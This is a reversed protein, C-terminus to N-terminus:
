PASRQLVKTLRQLLGNEYDTAYRQARASADEPTLSRGLRDNSSGHGPILAERPAMEEPCAHIASRRDGNSTAIQLEAVRRQGETKVDPDCIGRAADKTLMCKAHPETSTRVPSTVGFTFHDQVIGRGVCGCDPVGAPSSHAPSPTRPSINDKPPPKTELTAQPRIRCSANSVRTLPLIQIARELLQLGDVSEENRQCHVFDTIEKEFTLRTCELEAKAFSSRSLHFLLALATKVEYELVLSKLAGLLDGVTINHAKEDWTVKRQRSGEEHRKRVCPDFKTTPSFCPKAGEAVGGAAAM